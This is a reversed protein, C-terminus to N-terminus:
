DPFKMPYKTHVKGEEINRLKDKLLAKKFSGLYKLFLVGRTHDFEHQIMRATIGKYLRKHEKFHDDLYSLVISWPREVEVTFGPMSLCGERDVWKDESYKEISANIFTEKIGEDGSFYKEREKDNMTQFTQISDVIFLQLGKDIQPAALGAGNATYLTTWMDDILEQINETDHDIKRCKTTLIDHGYSVIPLVM